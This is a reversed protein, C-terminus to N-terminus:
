KNLNINSVLQEGASDTKLKKIRSAGYIRMPDNLSFANNFLLEVTEDEEVMQSAQISPSNNTGYGFYYIESATVVMRTQADTSQRSMYLDINDSTYNGTEYKADLLSYRNKIYHTSDFKRNGKLAYIYPYTVTQGNVEVGKIQPAIYTFEGSKNFLRECWNGSQEVNMMNLVRETTMKERLNKACRKLDDQLNALVLCWLWSDYGEFAYGGKEYDYTDRSM